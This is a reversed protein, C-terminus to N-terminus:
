RTSATRLLRAALVAVGTAWLVFVSWNFLGWLPHLPADAPLALVSHIPVFALIAIGTALTYGAVGVWRPDNRMRRALAILGIGAALFTVAFHAPM